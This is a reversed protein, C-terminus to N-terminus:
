AVLKGRLWAIADRLRRQGVVTQDWLGSGEHAQFRVKEDATEEAAQRSRLEEEDMQDLEDDRLVKRGFGAARTLDAKHQRVVSKCMAQSLEHAQAYLPSEHGSSVYLNPLKLNLAKSPFLRSAKRKSAAESESSPSTSDGASDHSIGSLMTQQRYFDEREIMSLYAMDDMEPMNVPIGTGPTRFFLMPSAFPDFYAAPKAFLDERAQM